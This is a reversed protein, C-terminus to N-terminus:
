TDIDSSVDGSMWPIGQVHLVIQETRPPSEMPCVSYSM